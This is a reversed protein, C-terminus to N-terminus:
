EPIWAPETANQREVSNEQSTLPLYLAFVTGATSSKELVVKGGHSDAVWRAISLGLGAGSGEGDRHLRSRSKDVRYFREFLQPWLEEPICPGTNTVRIVCCSNDRELSIRVAGGPHNYKCANDILILIAQRILDEDGALSSPPLPEELTLTVHREEALWRMARCVEVLLEDLYYPAFHMELSNADVRALLFMDNVIRRLRQMQEQVIVLADRYEAPSRNQGQLTVQAAALSAALPTRLEHSADAMFRRQQLFSEQLRALLHNFSIALQGVEDEPHVVELRRDLNQSTIAEVTAAMDALPALTRRALFYAGVTAFFLAAPISIELARRLASLDGLVDGRWTSLAITYVAGTAPVSISTTRIRLDYASIEAEQRRFPVTRLDHQKRGLNEKYAVFRDGERVVIQEQPFAKQYVVSLLHRVADEGAQKSQHTVLEQEIALQAGRLAASSSEDLRSYANQQILMYLVLSILCIVLAFFVSYRLTVQARASDLPPM